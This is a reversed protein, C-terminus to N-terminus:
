SYLGRIMVPLREKWSCISLNLTNILKDCALVSNAPRTAATPYDVTAIGHIKQVKIQEFDQTNEVILDAFEKWTTAPGECFHYTGWELEDSSMKEIMKYIVDTIGATSTPCGWQDNVINLSEREKALRIITKVFNNGYIGYVWSVRLIIHKALIQRILFEALWKSKGYVGLPNSSDNEHYPSTKSGDFVYDTSLHILPKNMQACVSALNVSGNVNINYALDMETEALDVKTYAATNIVVDPQFQEFASRVSPLHTIDLQNRDLGIIDLPLHQGQQVLETGLQGKAGTILIRM